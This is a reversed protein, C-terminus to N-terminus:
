GLARVEAEVRRGLLLGGVELDQGPSQARDKLADALVWVTLAQLARRLAVGLGEHPHGLPVLLPQDVHNVVGDEGLVV